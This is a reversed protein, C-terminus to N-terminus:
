PQIWVYISIKKKDNVRMLSTFGDNPDDTYCFVSWFPVVSDNTGDDELPLLIGKKLSSDTGAIITM